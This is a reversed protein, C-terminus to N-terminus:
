PWIFYVSHSTNKEKYVSLDWIQVSSIFYYILLCISLQQETVWNHGARQSGWSSCYALSRQGEGDGNFWYYWGVMEDGTMRKQQRWDKGADSDKGILWSKADPPRLLPAEAEADTRGIFIWSQNGKPNVLKIKKCDVPSLLRRWCWLEFADVRSSLKKIAWSECEYMVVPFVMAKVLQVKTSLTIDRSKLISDLNTMTKRGLLLRRKIEHM